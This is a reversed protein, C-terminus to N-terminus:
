LSRMPGHATLRPCGLTRLSYITVEATGLLASMSSNNRATVDKEAFPIEIDLADTVRDFLGRAAELLSKSVPPAFRKDQEALQEAVLAEYYPKDPGLITLAGGFIQAGAWPERVVTQNRNGRRHDEVAKAAPVLEGTLVSRIYGFSPCMSVGYSTAWVVLTIVM